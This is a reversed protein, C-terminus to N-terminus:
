ISRIEINESNHSLVYPVSPVKKNMSPSNNIGDMQNLGTSLKEMIKLMLYSHLSLHLTKAEAQSKDTSAVEKM